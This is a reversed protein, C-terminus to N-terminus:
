VTLRESAVAEDGQKLHLDVRPQGFELSVAVSLVSHATCHEIAEV